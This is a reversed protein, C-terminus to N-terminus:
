IGYYDKIRKPIDNPSSFWDASNAVELLDRDYERNLANCYSKLIDIKQEEAMSLGKLKQKETRQKKDKELKKEIAIKKTEDEIETQIINLLESETMGYYFYISRTRFKSFMCIGYNEALDFLVNARWFNRSNPHTIVKKQISSLQTKQELHSSFGGMRSSLFRWNTKVYSRGSPVMSRVACAMLFVAKDRDSMYAGKAISNITNVNAHTIITRISINKKNFFEMQEGYNCYEKAKRHADKEKVGKKLENEKIANYCYTIIAKACQQTDDEFDRLLCLPFHYTKKNEEM